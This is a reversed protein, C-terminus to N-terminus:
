RLWLLSASLDAGNRADVAWAASGTSGWLVIDVTAGPTLGPLTATLASVSTEATGSGVGTLFGGQTAAGITIKSYLSDYIATSNYAGIRSAAMVQLTTFGVPVTVSITAKAAWAVTLGFNTVQVYQSSPVVPSTLADNGIIGAPLSLTGTIAANGGITTNGDFAATGHVALPGNIDLEGDVTVVGEATVSTGSLAFASSQQQRQATRAQQRLYRQLSPGTSPLRSM